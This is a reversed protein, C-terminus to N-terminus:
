QVGLAFICGFFCGLNASFIAAIIPFIELLLAHVIPQGKTFMDTFSEREVLLIISLTANFIFNAMLIVKFNKWALAVNNEGIQNGIITCTADSMGYFLRISLAVYVQQIIVNAALTEKSILGSMLVLTDFAFRHVFIMIAATISMKIYEM